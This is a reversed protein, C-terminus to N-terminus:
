AKPAAFCFLCLIVAIGPQPSNSCGSHKGGVTGLGWVPSMCSEGLISSFHFIILVTGSFGAGVVATFAGLGRLIFGPCMMSGVSLAVVDRIGNREM